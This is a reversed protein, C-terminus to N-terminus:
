TPPLGSRVVVEGDAPELPRGSEAWAELGGEISYADYGAASLADAPMASRDGSRCYFVVPQEKDLKEAEAQVDPLSVLRAGPIHGGEFEYGERVDLAPAGAEILEAARDPSIARTETAEEAM